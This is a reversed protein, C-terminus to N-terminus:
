TLKLRIRFQGDEPRQGVMVQGASSIKLGFDVEVAKVPSLSLGEALESAINLVIARVNELVRDPDGQEGSESKTIASTNECDIVLTMKSPLISELLM